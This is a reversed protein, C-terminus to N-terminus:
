LRGRCGLPIAVAQVLWGFRISHDHTQRAPADCVPATHDRGPDRHRDEGSEDGAGDAALVGRVEGQRPGLCLAGQVQELRLERSLAAVGVRDDEM